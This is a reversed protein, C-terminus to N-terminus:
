IRSKGVVSVGARRTQGRQPLLMRLLPWSPNVNRGFCVDNTCVSVDIVLPFHILPSQFVFEEELRRLEPSQRVPPLLSGDRRGGDSKLM